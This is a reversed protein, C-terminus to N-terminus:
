LKVGGLFERVKNLLALKMGARPTAFHYVTGGTIHIDQRWSGDVVEELMERYALSTATLADHNCTHEFPQPTRHRQAVSFGALYRGRNEEWRKAHEIREETINARCAKCFDIGNKIYTTM